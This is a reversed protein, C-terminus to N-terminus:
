TVSDSLYIILEYGGQYMLLLESSLVEGLVSALTGYSVAKPYDADLFPETLYFLPVRVISVAGHVHPRHVMSEKWPYILWRSRWEWPLNYKRAVKRQWVRMKLKQM